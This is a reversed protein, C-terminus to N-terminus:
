WRREELEKVENVLRLYSEYRQKYVEGKQLAKKVACSPENIHKCTNFKCDKALSVFERFYDKIHDGDKPIGIDLSAFGPTDILKFDKLDFIEVHRTTHRGRGLKKSTEATKQINENAFQNLFTSKGVGSNGVALVLKGKLLETIEFYDNHDIRSIFTNIGCSDYMKKILKAREEDLDAKTILIVPETNNMLAYATLKDTLYQDFDPDKMSAVILFIDINAAQPRIFSNKREKVQTIVYEFDSKEFEVIDGVILKNQKKIKGPSHLRYEDGDCEAIFVGGAVRKIQGLM